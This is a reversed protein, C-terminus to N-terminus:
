SYRALFHLLEGIRRVLWEVLPEDYLYLGAPPVQWDRQAADQVLRARLFRLAVQKPDQPRAIPAVLLQDPTLLRLLPSPQVQQLQQFAGTWLRVYEGEPCQASEM